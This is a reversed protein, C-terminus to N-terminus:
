QAAARRQSEEVLGRAFGTVTREIFWGMGPMWTRFSGQWSIATGGDSDPSLRVDARYGKMPLPGSLAVYALHRDLEYAVIQERSRPGFGAGFLRVAGVGHPAPVGEVEYSAHGLSTWRTWGPGDVLVAFVVSPSAASRVMIDYRREGM